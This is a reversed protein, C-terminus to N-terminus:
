KGITQNKLERTRIIKDNDYFVEKIKEDKIYFAKVLLSGNKYIEVDFDSDDKYNTRRELEGRIYYDEKSLRGDNDYGFLWEELGDKSSRTTKTRKGDINYFYDTEEQVENVQEKTERVIRGKDDYNKKVLTNSEMDNELSSSITGDNESYTNNNKIILTQDKWLEITQLQGRKNYNAISMDAKSSEMEKALKRHSFIFSTIRYQGDPWERRIERLGGNDTFLFDDKYIEIDDKDYSISSYKKSGYVYSSKTKASLEGNIYTDEEIIRAQSDFSKVLSLKDGSYEKEIKPKGDKYFLTDWTKVPKSDKILKRIENGAGSEVELFYEAKNKNFASIEEFEMGTENSSYYRTDSFVNSNIFFLFVFFSAM